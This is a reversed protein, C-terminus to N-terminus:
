ISCSILSQGTFPHRIKKRRENWGLL